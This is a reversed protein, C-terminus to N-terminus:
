VAQQPDARWALKPEPVEVYARRAAVGYLFWLLAATKISFFSFSVLLTFSVYLATAHVYVVSARTTMPMLLTICIWIVAFGIISQTITFYSIGSDAGRFVRHKAIGFYEAFDLGFFARISGAVRGPFDDGGAPLNFGYVGAAALLIIAPLYFVVVRRPMYPFALSAVILIVITVTALRGDCGVLIMFTTLVLFWFARGTMQHRFSLTFISVIIAWNGLSVPDLHLSSLRHIGLGDLLFRSNPRNASIFLNSDQAWFNEEVFDRTNVYFMKVNFVQGYLDPALGEFVMIAVVFAQLLCVLRVVDGRAYVMGLMVFVPILIVDRILKLEIEQNLVSLVMFNIIMFWMLWLWRTMAPSWFVIIVALAIGVILIESYVVLPRTVGMGNANLFALILNFSVALGLLLAAILEKNVALSTDSLSPRYVSM